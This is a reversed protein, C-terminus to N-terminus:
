VLMGAIAASMLNALTGGAIARMGLEAILSRRSPVLGGLGGLLIALSSFNAFGTLAFTIIIATHPSFSAAQPGFDTFAVFENLVLKQGVFGGATVADEWPVGIVWMVPAFVYGIIQEFTIGDLGVLGGVAGLVLNLLAILSVFAFLMAGVNLALKLGDSAGTAAADIVNRPKTELAEDDDVATTTGAKEPEASDTGDEDAAAAPEPTTTAAPKKAFWALVGRRGGESEAAKAAHEADGTVAETEPVIIKAMMLGAPAAMFSAAILHDLSAGLMAYGVMVSGAVTSLGGVMVAFFESRTMGALYPRVVLPAETQGLFINATANLSEARTTGLVKRLGGGVIRVVWQLVNWHYLVATLSAVFVIIPLVQFAVVTAGNTPMVPGLLFDIGEKSSDIVRQVGASVASLAAKGADWRLVVFAFVLQLALAGLVTRPRIARRDTSLAFAILLLVVMGAAGWLVQM